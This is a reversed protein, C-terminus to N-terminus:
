DDRSIYRQKGTWNVNKLTAARLLERDHETLPRTTVEIAMAPVTVGVARGSRALRTSHAPRRM